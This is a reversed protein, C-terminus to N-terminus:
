KKGSGLPLLRGATIMEILKDPKELEYLREILEKMRKKIWLFFAENQETWPVQSDHRNANRRSPDVFNHTEPTHFNIESEINEYSYRRAGDGAIAVTEEYTGAWIQVRYHGTFYHSKDGTPKPEVSFEYLIVRNVETQLAKFKELAEKFRKMVEVQDEARVKDFGLADAVLKPLNIYFRETPVPRRYTETRRDTADYNINVMTELWPKDAQLELRMKTQKVKAM